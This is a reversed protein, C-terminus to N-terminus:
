SENYYINIQKTGDDIVYVGSTTAVFITNSVGDLSTGETIFIDNLEQNNFDLYKYNVESWDCLTTGMIDLRHGGVGSITYYLEGNSTIFCKEARALGSFTTSSRYGQPGMKIVDIGGTTIASLFDGNVHLNRIDNSTLNPFYLYDELCTLLIIPVDPDGNVCTKRVYKIGSGTTGLFVFDDNGAVTTFGGEYDIYSVYDDTDADFIRLGVSTATYIYDDDSYIQYLRLADEGFNFDYEDVSSYLSSFQFNSTM